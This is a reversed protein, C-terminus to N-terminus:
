PFYPVARITIPRKSQPRCNNGQLANMGDDDDDDDDDHDDDDDDDDNIWM